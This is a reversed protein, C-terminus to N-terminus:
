APAHAIVFNDNTTQHPFVIITFQRLSDKNTMAENQQSMRTCVDVETALMKNAVQLFELM